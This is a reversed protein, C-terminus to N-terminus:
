ISAYKQRRLILYTLICLIVGYLGLLGLNIFYRTMTDYYYLSYLGDTILNAPNIYAIIPFKSQVTYKISVNMMGALFCGFLIVSLVIAMKIGEKKKIISSIFSGLAMGTFSGMFCILLAYGSSSGFDVGLIYKVYIFTIIVTIMHFSMASATLVLFSKMKHVPAANIRAAIYSQNAQIQIVTFIGMTASMLSTMAMMSYFYILVVNTSNGVPIEEINSTTFDIDKLFGGQLVTPDKSIIDKIVTSIQSYSDFFVKAISEKMGESNVILEIGGDYILYADIKATSLLEKANDRDTLTVNFLGSENIAATMDNQIGEVEVIALNIKEFGEGSLLNTFAFYFLTSLIIPYCMLWFVTLKDKLCTKFSYKYITFM